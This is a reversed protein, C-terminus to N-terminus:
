DTNTAQGKCATTLRTKLKWWFHFQNKKADFKNQSFYKSSEQITAFLQQMKLGHNASIVSNYGL